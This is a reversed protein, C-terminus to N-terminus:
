EGEGRELSQVSIISIIFSIRWSFWKNQFQLLDDVVNRELENTKKLRESEFIRRKDIDGISEGNTADTCSELNKHWHFLFIFVTWKPWPDLSFHPFFSM